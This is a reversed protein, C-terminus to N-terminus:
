YVPPPLPDFYPLTENFSLTKHLETHHKKCLWIVDLPLNYDAHHAEVKSETCDGYECPMKKIKGIKLAYRLNHRVSHKMRKRLEVSNGFKLPKYRYAM